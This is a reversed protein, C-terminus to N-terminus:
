YQKSRLSKYYKILYKLIFDRVAKQSATPSKNQKRYKLQMWNTPFGEFMKVFPFTNYEQIFLIPLLDLNDYLFLLPMSKLKEKFYKM